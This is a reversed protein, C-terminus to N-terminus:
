GLAAEEEGERGWRREMRERKRRLADYEVVLRRLPQPEYRQGSLLSLAHTLAMLPATTHRTNLLRWLGCDEGSADGSGGLCWVWTKDRTERERERERKM